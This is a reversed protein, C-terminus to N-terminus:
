NSVNNALQRGSFLFSSLKSVSLFTNSQPGFFVVIVQFVSFRKNSSLPVPTDPSLERCDDNCIDGKVNCMTTKRWKLLFINITTITLSM